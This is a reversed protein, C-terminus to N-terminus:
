RAVFEAPSPQHYPVAVVQMCGVTNGRAPWGCTSLVVLLNRSYRRAFVSLFHGDM